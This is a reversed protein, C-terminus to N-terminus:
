NNGELAALRSELETNKTELEQVKALLENIAGVVTKNITSLNNDTKSQKDTALVNGQAASLPLTAEDSELSNIVMNETLVSHTTVNKSLTGSTNTIAVENLTLGVVSNLLYYLTTVNGLIRISVSVNGNSITGVIIRNDQVTANLNDIGGIVTSISESDEASLLNTLNIEYPDSISDLADQLGTINSIEHTHNVNAKDALGETVESKTALNSVDPIESKLAYDTLEEQTAYTSLDIDKPEISTVTMKVNSNGEIITGDLNMIIEYKSAVDDRTNLGVFVLKIQNASEFAVYEVPMKYYHPNTSLSLGYKVYQIGGYAIIKKLSVIDEVGFWELIEEQTYIKDKISRIPIRIEKPMLEIDSEVVLNEKGDLTKITPKDLSNLNLHVKSTGVEVQKEENELGANYIRAGLLSSNSEEGGFDGFVQGNSPLVINKTNNYDIWDVKNVLEEKTALESVDPLESKTAYNKAELETETIYEEPISTLYGKEDLATETVYGDLSPIEDKTALNSIDPIDSKEAFAYEDVALAFIGDVYQVQYITPTTGIFFMLNAGGNGGSINGSAHICAKYDGVSNRDVIVTKSERIIEILSTFDIGLAAEINASSEGTELETLGKTEFVDPIQDTTAIVKKGDSTEITVDSDTNINTHVKSSGIELQKIGDYVAAKAVTANEDGYNGLYSGGEPLIVNINSQTKEDYAYPIKDKELRRVESDAYQIKTLTDEAINIIKNPSEEIISIGAGPLINKSELNALKSNIEDDADKRQDIEAVLTESLQKTSENIVALSDNLNENITNISEVLNNNLTSIDSNIKDTSEEVENRTAYIAAVEDKFDEFEEKDTYDGVDQKQSVEDHLENIADVISKNLTELRHDIKPQAADLKQQANEDFAVIIKDFEEKSGTFGAKVADDYTGQTLRQDIETGTYKSKYFAM